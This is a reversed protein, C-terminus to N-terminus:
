ENDGGVVVEVNEYTGDGNSVLVEDLTRLTNIKVGRAKVTVRLARLGYVGQMDGLEVEELGEELYGTAQLYRIYRKYEQAEEEQSYVIAIKGPQTLREGTTSIVAKDIRKKVIEYRINYAGDVDFKKEDIRFRISIPINQVLILHATELPVDMTPLLKQMEWHVGCMMRLQWLRLNHLYLENYSKNDVLSEGVYLNYDVGDTKFMEFFHPYMAQAEKEQAEIYGGIADNIMRVSEEYEKRRRYLTGVEPDIAHEYSKIAEKVEPGFKSLESFLSAIEGRLFQLISIEDGSRLEDKVERIYNETRFRLEEIAFLPRRRQCVALINRALELQEILDAQIAAHRESSSGRIDSLGYLPYVNQFVISEAQASGSKVQEQLYHKAAERFRWEVAPHISTYQQKIIAQIRDEKENLEIDVAVALLSSVESLYLPSSVNLDHANKSGVELIGVLTNESYLPILLLSKYGQELLYNEFGTRNEYRELDAIVLPEQWQHSVDSYLSKSWMPCSPAVGKSLLLSKGLPQISAVSDFEGQEISILGIDLSPLGMLSRIKGQLVDITEPRSFTDKELLDKQILSILVGETVEVANLVGFGHIQFLHPPLLSKWLDLNTRDNLLQDKQEDSLVPLEGTLVVDCMGLDFEIKFYRVLKTEADEVPFFLPVKAILEDGYFKSYIMSYAKLSKVETMSKSKSEFYKIIHYIMNLKEFGPTTYFAQPTYPLVAAAYSSEISGIPLVASILLDVLERHQEIFAMDEIPESLEPVADVEELIKRVIEAQISKVSEGYTRWYEILPAFSLVNKFPFSDNSYQM